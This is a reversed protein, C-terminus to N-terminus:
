FKSVSALLVYRYKRQSHFSIFAFNRIHGENGRMYEGERETTKGNLLIFYVLILSM